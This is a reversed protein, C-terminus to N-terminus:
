IESEGKCRHMRSIIYPMGHWFTANFLWIKEKENEQLSWM